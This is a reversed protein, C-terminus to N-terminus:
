NPMELLIDVMKFSDYKRETWFVDCVLEVWKMLSSLLKIEFQNYWSQQDGNM